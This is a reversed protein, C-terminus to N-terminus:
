LNLKYVVLAAAMTPYPGSEIEISMGDAEKAVYWGEEKRDGFRIVYLDDGSVWAMVDGDDYHSYRFGYRSGEFATGSSQLTVLQGSEYPM